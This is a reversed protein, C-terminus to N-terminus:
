DDENFEKWPFMKEYAWGGIWLLLMIPVLWSMIIIMAIVRMSGGLHREGCQNM